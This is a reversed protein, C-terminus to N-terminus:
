KVNFNYGFYEKDSDDGYGLNELLDELEQNSMTHVKLLSRTILEIAENRTIDITSKWGMATSKLTTFIFGILGVM